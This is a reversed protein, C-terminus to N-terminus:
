KGYNKEGTTNRGFHSSTIKLLPGHSSAALLTKYSLFRQQFTMSVSFAYVDLEGMTVFALSPPLLHQSPEM